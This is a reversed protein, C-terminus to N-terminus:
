VKWPNLLTASEKMYRERAGGSELGDLDSRVLLDIDESFRRILQWAKSLSTGGKFVSGDFFASAVVRLGETVWYDKEILAPSAGLREGVTTLLDQFDARQHLV